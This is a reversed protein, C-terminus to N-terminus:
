VTPTKGLLLFAIPGSTIGVDRGGFRDLGRDGILECLIPHVSCRRGGHRNKFTLAVIEAPWAHTTDLVVSIVDASVETVTSDEPM